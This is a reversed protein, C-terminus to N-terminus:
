ENLNEKLNMSVRLLQLPAYGSLGVHSPNRGKGKMRKMNMAWAKKMATTLRIQVSANGM